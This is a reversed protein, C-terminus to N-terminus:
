ATGAQRVSAEAAPCTPAAASAPVRARSSRALAREAPVPGPTLKASRAAARAKAPPPRQCSAARGGGGRDEGPQAPSPQDHGPGIGAAPPAPEPPAQPAQRAQENSAAQRHSRPPASRPSPRGLQWVGIRVTRERARLQKNILVSFIKTKLGLYLTKREFVAAQNARELQNRGPQLLPAVQSVFGSFAEGITPPERTRTKLRDPDVLSTPNGLAYAYLSLSDQAGVPPIGSGVLVEQTLEPPLAVDALLRLKGATLEKRLLPQETLPRGPALPNNLPTQELVALVAETAERLTETGLGRTM